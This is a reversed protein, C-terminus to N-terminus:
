IQPVNANISSTLLEDDNDDDGVAKKMTGVVTMVM